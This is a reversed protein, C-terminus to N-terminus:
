YTYSLELGFTRPKGTFSVIGTPTFNLKAHSTFYSEDTINRAWLRLKWNKDPAEYAISANLLGFASQSTTSNDFVDYKVDDQWVYDVHLDFVARVSTRLSYDVFVTASFEPANSMRVGALDVVGLFPDAALYEDFEADLYSLSAGIELGAAPVAFAEAEAGFITSKAANDIGALGAGTFTNVQQDEYRSYFISSNLRLRDQFWDIKNGIEYSWVNEPAFSEGTGLVNYGGSKFGKTISAYFFANESPQYELSIHPTWDNWTSEDGGAIGSSSRIKENSYRLGSTISLRDGLAYTLQAFVASATNDTRGGVPVDFGAAPIFVVGTDSTNEDLYYLGAQWELREGVSTGQLRLEQSFQQHDERNRFSIADIETGDTDILESVANQAYATISELALGDGIRLTALATAACNRAHFFSDTNHSVAFPNANSRAGLQAALGDTTPVVAQGTNERSLYHGLLQLDLNESSALRLAGRLAWMDEDNMDQRGPQLNETFADRTNRTISLRAAVTDTVASSVTGSFDVADYNGISLKAAATFDNSPAASIINIAGGTANRGYLTGQPGRLVEIREVDIFDYYAVWPRAQFVGDIHLAVAGQSGLFDLNNGIGRVYIRGASSNNSVVVGPAYLALDMLNEIGATEIWDGTWASVAVAVSQIPQRRKQATVIIEELQPLAMSRGSGSGSDIAQAFSAGALMGCTIASLWLLVDRATTSQHDSKSYM